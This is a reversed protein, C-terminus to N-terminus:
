WGQRRIYEAIKAEAMQLRYRFTSESVKQVQAAEVRSLGKFVMLEVAWRQEKPLEALAPRWAEKVLNDLVIAEVDEDSVLHLTGLTAAARSQQTVIRYAANTGVRYVYGMPDNIGIGRGRVAWRSLSVLADGAADEADQHHRTVRKAAFMLHDILENISMGLARKLIMEILRPQPPDQGGEEENENAAEGTM